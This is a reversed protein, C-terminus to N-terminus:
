CNLYLFYLIVLNHAIGRGPSGIYHPSKSDSGSSELSKFANLSSSLSSSIKDTTADPVSTTETSQQVVPPLIPHTAPLIPHAGNEQQTSLQAPTTSSTQLDAVPQRVGFNKLSETNNLDSYFSFRHLWLM